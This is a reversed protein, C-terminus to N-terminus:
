GTSLYLNHPGDELNAMVTEAWWSGAIAKGPAVKRDGSQEEKEAGKQRLPSLLTVPLKVM